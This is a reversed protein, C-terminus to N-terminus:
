RLRVLGYGRALVWFALSSAVMCGFPRWDAKDRLERLKEMHISETPARM